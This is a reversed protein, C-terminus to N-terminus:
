LLCEITDALTQFYLCHKYWGWIGGLKSWAGGGTGGGTGAM